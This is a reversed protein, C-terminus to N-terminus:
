QFRSRWWGSMKLECVLGLLVMLRLPFLILRLLTGMFLLIPAMPIMRGRPTRWDTEKFHAKLWQAFFVPRFYSCDLNENFVLLRRLGCVFAFIKPRIRADQGDWLVAVTNYGERDIRRKLQYISNWERRPPFIIIQGVRPSGEYSSVESLTCLLDIRPNSFVQTNLRDIAVMVNPSSSSVILLIKENM